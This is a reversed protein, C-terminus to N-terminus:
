ATQGAEEKQSPPRGRRPSEGLMQELERDIQKRKSILEEVKAIKTDLNM